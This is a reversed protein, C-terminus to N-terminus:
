KDVSEVIHVDQSWFKNCVYEQGKSLILDNVDNCEEVFSEKKKIYEVVCPSFIHIFGFYEVIIYNNDRIRNYFSARKRIYSSRTSQLDKIEKKINM